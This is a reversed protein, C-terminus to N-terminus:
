GARRRAVALLTAPGRTLRLTTFGALDLFLRLEERTFARLVSRDRVTRKRRGDYIEYVADWNWTWGTALNMSMRSRRVFRSGGRTVEERAHTRFKGFIAEADFNDFVLIGGPALAGGICSLASRVDENTTMYTFSRGAIVVADFKRRASFRRMDGHVFRAAPTERRAIRLMAPAVDMGTYDYGGELFYPALSGAGCGPELVSKCGRRELVKHFRRFERGYDFLSQYMEYYVEALTSYLRTGMTVM